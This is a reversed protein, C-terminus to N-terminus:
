YISSADAPLSRVHKLFATVRKDDEFPYELGLKEAVEVATKRFLSCMTFLAEWIHEFEADSYTVEFQEWDKAPLFDPLYKGAKGASKAFDAAIGVKWELMTIMVNRNIQEHMFMAYTLERRWLGKSINMTIWWFENCLDAFEQADPKRILYDRDSAPPLYGILGDKDLLLVSLSDPELLEDMKEAPILTLDIRNGDMFQMLYPFRGRGDAPPLVKEEPMQMMVREGFVDVWSHDCIFSEMERVIYVIDYDQFIDRIVNPNARSGNLIVARVREDEKATTLILNMIETETRSKM